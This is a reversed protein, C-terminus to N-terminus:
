KKGKKVKAIKRKKSTKALKRKLVAKIEGKFAARQAIKDFAAKPRGRLFYLKARRVGVGAKQKVEIKQIWPSYLPFIQEIEINEAGIKRVIFTKNDGEGRISLVQGEFTTQKRGAEQAKLYLRITDGVQFQTDGLSAFLSM